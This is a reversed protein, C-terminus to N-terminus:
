RVQESYEKCNALLTHGSSYKEAIEFGAWLNDLKCNHKIRSKWKCEPIYFVKQMFSAHVYAILGHPVPPVLEAEIQVSDFRKIALLCLM